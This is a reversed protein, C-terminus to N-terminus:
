KPAEKYDIMVIDGTVDVTIDLLIGDKVLTLDRLLFSDLNFSIKGELYLSKDKTEFEFSRGHPLVGKLYGRYTSIM